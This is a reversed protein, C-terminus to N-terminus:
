TFLMMNGSGGIEVWMMLLGAAAISGAFYSMPSALLWAMEVLELFIEVLGPNLALLWIHFSIAGVSFVLKM